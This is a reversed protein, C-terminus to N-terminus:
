KKEKNNEEIDVREFGLVKWHNNEDLRMVYRQGVIDTVTDVKVGMTIILSAYQEQNQEWEELSETKVVYNVITKNAEVYSTIETKLSLLHAELTNNQLLEEDLLKRMLLTLENIQDDSLNETYIAKNIRQYLKMVEKPSAPYNGEIDKQTLLDYESENGKDNKKLFSNDSFRAMYYVGVIIVLMLLVVLNKGVSGKVKYKKKAM